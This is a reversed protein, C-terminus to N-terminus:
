NMMIKRRPREFIETMADEVSEMGTKIREKVFVNDRINEPAQGGLIEQAKTVLEALSEDQFINREKFNEFFEYFSNVTSNKFIKPKGDVGSTFRDTIREVMSSFEERLSQVALERAEDMTQVFKEKERQYVEPSLLGVNGNPVDMIIFRWAFAFKSQVDVPYDMENFLEGLYVM